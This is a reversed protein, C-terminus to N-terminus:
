REATRTLSCGCRTPIAPERQDLLGSTHQVGAAGPSLKDINICTGPPVTLNMVQEKVADDVRDAYGGGVPLMSASYRRLQQV